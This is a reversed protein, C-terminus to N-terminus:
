TQRIAPKRAVPAVCFWRRSGPGTEPTIATGTRQTKPRLDARRASRATTPCVPRRLYASKSNSCPTRRISLPLGVRHRGSDDRVGCTSPTSRWLTATATPESPDSTGACGPPSLRNLLLALVSRSYLPCLVPAPRDRYGVLGGVVQSTRDRRRRGPVALWHRCQSVTPWPSTAM